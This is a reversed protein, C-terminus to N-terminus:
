GIGRRQRLGTPWGTQSPSAPPSVEGKIQSVILKQLDIQKQRSGSISTEKSLFDDRGNELEKKKTVLDDYSGKEIDLDRKSWQLELERTSSGLQGSKALQITNSNLM